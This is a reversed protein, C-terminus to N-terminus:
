VACTTSWLGPTELRVQDHDDRQVAHRTLGDSTRSDPRTLIQKLKGRIGEITVRPKVHRFTIGEVPEAGDELPDVGSASVPEALRHEPEAGDLVFSMWSFETTAVHKILGGLTLSSVTTRRRADDDSLDRTTFRLFNRHKDLTQLLDLRERTQTKEATTM